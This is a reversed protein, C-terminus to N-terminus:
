TSWLYSSGASATLMVSGGMCFSTPGGATITPASPAANITVPVAPSTSPGFTADGSYSATLSRTGTALALTTLSAANNGVDATGLATVRDYFTGTGTGGNPSITAALTVPSDACATSPNASLSTTTSSLALVDPHDGTPSRSGGNGFLTVASASPVGDAFLT